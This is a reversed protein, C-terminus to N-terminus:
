ADQARACTSLAYRSECTADLGVSPGQETCDIALRRGDDGDDAVVIEGTREM